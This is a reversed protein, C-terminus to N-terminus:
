CSPREGTAFVMTCRWMLNDTYGIDAQVKYNQKSFLLVDSKEGLKEKSVEHPEMVRPPNTHDNQGGNNRSVLQILGKSKANEATVLQKLRFYAGPPVQGM